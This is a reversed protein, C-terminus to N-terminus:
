FLLKRRIYPDLKTMKDCFSQAANTIMNWNMNLCPVYYLNKPHKVFRNPPWWEFDTIIVSMEKLRKKDGNIYHWIQEYDTGGSVKPVKQFEAYIQNVSKDKTNLKTCQSLVHSFSNFYLNVNMKKAMHILAKITAQYNLEDISGSTDLYIHLDPKYKTSIIRGPRNFDSPDRRNARSFSVCTNKIANESKAVFAMKNVIKSFNKALDRGSPATKKFKTRACRSAAQMANSQANAAAGAIHQLMKATATLKNLRNNSVMRIKMNISKNIMDWESSIAKASAMSHKYVNVFILTKPSFTEGVNFPLIGFEAPSVQSIYQMLYTMICRAFSYDDNNEGDNNRLILSETLDTLTLTQFDSFCQNTENPVISAINAVQTALWTKFNDFAVDNAFYFGLAEPRAYFALSAFFKDYSCQGALFQKASPIVDLAPTYVVRSSDPLPMHEAAASQIAFLDNGFMLTKATKDFNILSNEYLSMVDAEAKPDPQDNCCAIIRDAVEDNSITHGSDDTIDCSAGAVLPTKLPEVLCTEIHSKILDNYDGKIKHQYVPSITCPKNNKIKM